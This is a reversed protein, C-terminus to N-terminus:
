YMGICYNHFQGNEILYIKIDRFIPKTKAFLAAKMQTKGTQGVVKKNTDLIFLSLRRM